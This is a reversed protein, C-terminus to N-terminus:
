KKEEIEESQIISVKLKRSKINPKTHPIKKANCIVIDAVCTYASGTNRVFYFIIKTPTM